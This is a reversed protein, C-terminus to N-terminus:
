LTGKGFRRELEKKSDQKRRLEFEYRDLYAIAQQRATARLLPTCNEVDVQGVVSALAQEYLDFEEESLKSLITDMADLSTAYSLGDYYHKWDAGWTTRYTEAEHAVYESLQSDTLHDM